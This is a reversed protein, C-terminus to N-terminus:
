MDNVIHNKLDRLSEEIKAVKKLVMEKSHEIKKLSEIFEDIELFKQKEEETLFDNNRLPYITDIKIRLEKKLEVNDDLKKKAAYYEDHSVTYYFDKFKKYYKKANIRKQNEKIEQEKKANEPLNELLNKFQSNNEGM